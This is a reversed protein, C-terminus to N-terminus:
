EGFDFYESDFGHVIRYLIFYTFTKRKPNGLEDMILHIGYGMAAAGIVHNYSSSIYAILLLLFYEWGHLLALFGKIKGDKHTHYIRSIDTDFGYQRFYDAFHDIDVIWGAFFCSVAPLPERQYAYLGTAVATSVVVHVAPRM